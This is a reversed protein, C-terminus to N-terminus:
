IKAKKFVFLLCLLGIILTKEKLFTNELLHKKSEKLSLNKGLITIKNVLNNEESFVSTGTFVVFAIVLVIIKKM